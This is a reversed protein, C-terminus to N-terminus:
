EQKDESDAAEPEETKAEEEQDATAEAETAEKKEAEQEPEEIVGDTLETEVTQELIEQAEDEHEVVPAPKGPKVKLALKGVRDRLYYLKARRVSGDKIVTIKSINPSNWPLVKEVGVGYSIKRVTFTKRTGSGKISIVLGKFTQIRQKDGERIITDVAITDGVKFNPLDKRIYSKEITSIKQTNM